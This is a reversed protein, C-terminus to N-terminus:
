FNSSNEMGGDFIYDVFVNNGEVFYIILYRKNVVAKRYKRPLEFPVQWVPYLFPNDYLTKIKTYVRNYLKRATNPSVNSLFRVHQRLLDRAYNTFEVNYKKM